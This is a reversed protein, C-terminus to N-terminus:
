CDAPQRSPFDLQAGDLLDDVVHWQREGPAEVYLGAPLLLLLLLMLSLLLLM